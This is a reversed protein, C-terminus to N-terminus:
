TGLIVGAVIFPVTYLQADSHSSGNFALDIEPYVHYSATQLITRQSTLKTVQLLKVCKDLTSVFEGNNLIEINIWDRIWNILTQSEDDYFTLKVEKLSSGMPVKHTSMQSNFSYSNLSAVGEDVDVAPFWDTFPTPAGQFKVDWLYKKGWEVSRIQEINLVAM